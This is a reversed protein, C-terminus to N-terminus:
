GVLRLRVQDRHHRNGPRALRAEGPLEELVDVPQGLVDAPVAAAAQGVALAHRVPREGLHHAGPGRDRFAFARLRLELLQVRRDLLRDGIGLLAPEHLRPQRMEEAELRRRRGVTLVQEAGPPEEVLPEGVLHRRDHHELVHLPGVRRQEVEDLVEDVPRLVMGEEDDHQRPRIQRLPARGPARALPREGREVELRQRDGVHVLQQTGEHGAQGVLESCRDALPGLAYREIGDLRHPHQEVPPEEDRVPACILRRPRDAREVHGLRQVRQDGGPQVPERGVLAPEHLVRGHKSVGKAQVGQGVQAPQAWSVDLGHQGLEDALFHQPQLVVRERGLAPLVAEQLIEHAPDRVVHERLVLALRTVEGGRSQVLAVVLHDLDDGGVIEGRAVCIGVGVVCALDGAPGGRREDPGALPRPRQRRGQLRLAVELLRGLEHAIGELPGAKVLLRPHHRPVASPRGLRQRVELPRHREELIGARAMRTSADRGPQALHHPVRAPELLRELAHVDRQIQQRGLLGVRVDGLERMLDAAEAEEGAIGVDGDFPALLRELEGLGQVQGVDQRM